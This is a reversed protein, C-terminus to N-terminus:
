QDFRAIHGYDLPVCRKTIQQVVLFISLRPASTDFSLTGGGKGLVFAIELDVGGGNGFPFISVVETGGGGGKAVAVAVLRSSAAGRGNGEFDSSCVFKDGGRDSM